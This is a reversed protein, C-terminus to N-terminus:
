QQQFAEKNPNVWLSEPDSSLKLNIMGISCMLAVTFGLMIYACPSNSVQLGLYKFVTKYKM